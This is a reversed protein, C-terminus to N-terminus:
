IKHRYSLGFLITNKQQQLNTLKFVTHLERLKDSHSTSRAYVNINNFHQTPNINPLTCMYRVGSIDVQFLNTIPDTRPM